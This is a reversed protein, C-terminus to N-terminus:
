SIGYVNCLRNLKEINLTIEIGSSVRRKNKTIAMRKLARGVWKANLWEPTIKMISGDKREKEEGITETLATKIKNISIWEKKEDDSILWISHLLMSDRNEFMDDFKKKESDEKAINIIKEFIDYGFLFSISFLPFFIELNRGEINSNYIGELFDHLEQSCEINYKGLWNMQSFRENFEIVETQTTKHQIHTHTTLTTELLDNWIKEVSYSCLLYSCLSCQKLEITIFDKVKKADDDFEWAEIKRTISTNKSRELGISICRDQLVDDIGWINAICIPAYAEFMEPEMEGTRTKKMRPIFMGKKYASNLLLRLSNSEKREINEMEDLCFSMKESMRFIFAESPLGLVKGNNSLYAILKLLRTKGSGKPANIFLYPFTRFNDHFYTGIIWLAVIIYNKEEMEVYRKLINILGEFFLEEKTKNNKKM